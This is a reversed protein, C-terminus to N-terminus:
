IRASVSRSVSKSILRINRPDCAYRSTVDVHWYPLESPVWDQGPSVTCASASFQLYERDTDDNHMEEKWSSCTM